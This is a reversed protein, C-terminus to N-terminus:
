RLKYLFIILYLKLIVYIPLIKLFVIKLIFLVKILNEYKMKIKIIKKSQTSYIWTKLKSKILIQIMNIKNNLYFNKYKFIQKFNKSM